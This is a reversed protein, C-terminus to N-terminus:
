AQRCAYCKAGPPESKACEIPVSCTACKREELDFAADEPPKADGAMWGPETERQVDRARADAAAKDFSTPEKDAPKSEGKLQDKLAAAGRKPKTPQAEAPTTTKGADANQATPVPTPQSSKADLRSRLADIWTVEGDNIATYLGRLADLEAPSMKTTDHGLWQELDSPMVSIAAFADLMKVRAADPDKANKDSMIRKCLDFMEDQLHGPILRLIGTRAAKSVASAEKVGIEDDTGEVIFVRDGYSNVREGIPNQGRKLQKREVTKRITLDRSWTVNSELDTVTVRVIREADSDYITVTEIPMNGFCRAAVEAFRITLGEVQKGGIPISYIAQQAFGDRKCEKIMMQRADDLNRPCRLAMIWRAEIDAKAKAVLAATAANESSLAMGAFERRRTTLARSPASEITDDHNEM